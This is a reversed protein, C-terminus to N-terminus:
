DLRGPNAAEFEVCTGDDLKKELAKVQAATLIMGDKAGLAMPWAKLNALEHRQWIVRVGSPSASTDLKRLENFRCPM